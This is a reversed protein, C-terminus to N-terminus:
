SPWIILRLLLRMIYSIYATATLLILISWLVYLAYHLKILWDLHGISFRYKDELNLPKFAYSDMIEIEMLLSKWQPPISKQNDRFSVHERTFTTIIGSSTKWEDSPALIQKIKSEIIMAQAKRLLIFGHARRSM